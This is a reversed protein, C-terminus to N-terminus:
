EGFAFVAGDRCAVVFRRRGAPVVALPASCLHDTAVAVTGDAHVIGARGSARAFAVRGRADVLLPPSPKSEIPALFSLTGTASVVGGGTPAAPLSKELFAHARETGSADVAVLFGSQSAVYAVGSSLVAPAGDLPATGDAISARVHAVGTALDLAVLRRGDVVALLTRADALAAGSGHRLAGGFSGLKRPPSPPRWAYVGGADGTVLVVDGLEPAASASTSPPAVLLAGVAREDLPARARVAGSADLATLVRGAAVVVGGDRLAVPAADGERPKAGLQATARIAGGPSLVVAQANATVVVLAGSSTVVPPAVAAQPGLRARWEQEGGPGLKVVEPITLALIVGGTEDVAPALDLGGRVQHSWIQPADDPLEDRAAGTHAGDVRDNPAPGRPEGVVVRRPVSPDLVDGLAASAACALACTLALARARM